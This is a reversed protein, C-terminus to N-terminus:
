HRIGGTHLSLGLVGVGCPPHLSLNIYKEFDWDSSFCDFLITTM